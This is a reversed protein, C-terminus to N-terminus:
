VASMEVAEMGDSSKTLSKEDREGTASPHVASLLTQLNDFSDMEPTISRELVLLTASAHSKRSGENLESPTESSLLVDKLILVLAQRQALLSATDHVALNHIAAIARDKVGDDTDNLIADILTDLVAGNNYQCLYLKIRRPAAALNRLAGVAFHRSSLLVGRVTRSQGYPAIRHVTLELLLDLLPGHESLVIKNEPSWSLNLVARAVLSRSRLVEMTTELTDGPHLPRCSVELLSEIFRPACAMMQMNESNCALNAITWLASLRSEWPIVQYPRFCIVSLLVGLLGPFHAMPKTAKGVRAFHGFIKCIKRLLLDGEPTAIQDVKSPNEDTTRSDSDLDPTESGRDDDNLERALATRRSLENDILGVLLQMIQHGMREFCLEVSEPSARLISELTDCTWTIESFLEALDESQQQTHFALFTLHKVLASDAGATIEDDHVAQIDHDFADKAKQINELREKITISTSIANVIQKATLNVNPRHRKTPPSDIIFEVSKRNPIKSQIANEEKRQPEGFLSLDPHSSKFDDELMANAM